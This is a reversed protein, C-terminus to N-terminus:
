REPTVSSELTSSLRKMNFKPKPLTGIESEQSTASNEHNNEDMISLPNHNQGPM